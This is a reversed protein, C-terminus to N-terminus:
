QCHTKITRSRHIQADEKDENDKIEGIDTNDCIESFRMNKIYDAFIELAEHEDDAEIMDCVNFCLNYLPM